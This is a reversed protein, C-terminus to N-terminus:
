EPFAMNQGFYNVMLRNHGDQRLRCIMERDVISDGHKPRKNKDMYMTMILAVDKDENMEYEESSSSCGM